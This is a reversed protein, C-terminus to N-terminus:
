TPEACLALIWGLEQPPTTDAVIQPPRGNPHPVRVALRLNRFLEDGRSWKVLETCWAGRLNPGRLQPSTASYARLTVGHDPFILEDHTRREVCRVWPPLWAKLADGQINWVDALTPAVLGY